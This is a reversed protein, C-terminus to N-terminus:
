LKWQTNNKLEDAFRTQKELLNIAELITINGVKSLAKNLNVIIDRIEYEKEIQESEERTITFGINETIHNRWPSGLDDEAMNNM